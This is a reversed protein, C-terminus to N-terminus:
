QVAIKEHSVSVYACSVAPFPSFDRYSGFVASTYRGQSETRGDRSVDFPTVAAERKSIDVYM